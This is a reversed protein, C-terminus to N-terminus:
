PVVVKWADDDGLVELVEADPRYVYLNGVVMKWTPCDKPTLTVKVVWELYWPDDTTHSLTVSAVVPEDEEYM